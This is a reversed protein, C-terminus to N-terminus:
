KKRRRRGRPPRRFIFFVAALGLIVGLLLTLAESSIHIGGTGQEVIAIEEVLIVIVLLVGFIVLARRLM